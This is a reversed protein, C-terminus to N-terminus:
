REPPARSPHAAAARQAILSLRAATDAARRPALPAVRAPASPLAARAQSLDQCSRCHAGLQTAGREHALEGTCPAGASAAVLSAADGHHGAHAHAIAGISAAASLVLM